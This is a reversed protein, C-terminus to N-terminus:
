KSEDIEDKNGKKEFLFEFIDKNAPYIRGDAMKILYNGGNIYMKHPKASGRVPITIEVDQDLHEAEFEQQKTVYTEFM